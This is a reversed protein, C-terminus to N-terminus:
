HKGRGRAEDRSRPAVNDGPPTLYFCDGAEAKSAPQFPQTWANSGSPFPQPMPRRNVGDALFAPEAPLTVSFGVCRSKSTGNDDFVPCDLDKVAWECVSVQDPRGGVGPKGQCQAYLDPDDKMLTPSCECKKTAANPACFPAPQCADLASRELGKKFSKLDLTVTLIGSSPEYSTDWVIPKKVGQDNKESELEDFVLDKTALDVGVAKVNTKDFNAPQGTGVYMQYTQKTTEKAYVLFLYYTQGGKFINRLIASSQQATGDTTSVYYIGNDVTLQIRGWIDPGMMRIKQDEGAPEGATLLQRYLPIGYCNLGVDSTCNRNWVLPDECGTANYPRGKACEPYIVTTVYDYPSTNVTEDSACETTQRPGRFFPDDNVSLTNKLGTLTGDDDNLVTQRDIATWGKFIQPNWTAYKKKAAAEDTEFWTEGTKADAKTEAKFLPQFVYHRIDVNDFFLNLSHFAPPYYFGNPQKWAIAANPLYANSDEGPLGLVRGYMWRSDNCQQNVNPFPCGDPRTNSLKTEKIDLYANSDQLSPGDYINFFRQNVGFADLQMSIGEDLSMCYNTSSNSCRLGELKPTPKEGTKLPNFPGAASVFPNIAPKTPDTTDVASKQTEGIFVNRRALMWNGSIVSSHTYDGGTVFTLAGNQVDTIVSDQVLFWRPRLWISSFNKEGWNFSSTYRDVVTVMCSPREVGSCVNLTSCDGQPRETEGECRTYAPLHQYVIPYHMEANPDASPVPALGAPTGTNEKKPIMRLTLDGDIFGHCSGSDPTSNFSNMASTCYNGKFKKLPATGGRALGQQISAYGTWKQNRSEGSISGLVPWFCAGCGAAGAAMNYELDNWGNMVWFVSPYVFDSRNPFPLTAPPEPTPKVVPAPDPAALIGPVKRPNDRQATGDAKQAATRAFVGLNSYLKNNTETGDELYYGHGISKWGVNRALLVDQTGHLVIWRTM